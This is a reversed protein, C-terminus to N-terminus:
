ENIFKDLLNQYSSPDRLMGYGSEIGKVKGKPTIVVVKPFRKSKNYKELLKKNREKEKESILDQNRPFDLKLLVFHKSYKQFQEKEFFDTKLNKCPGCWDSGTFYILINKDHKKSVKAADNYDTMWVNTQGYSSVSLCLIVYIYIKLMTKYFDFNM